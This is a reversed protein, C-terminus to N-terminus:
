NAKVLKGDIPAALKAAAAPDLKGTIRLVAGGSVYDYESGLGAAAKYATQIYKARAQAASADDFQEVTAGCAVGPAGDCTQGKVNLVTASSYGNPRGLEHNTDNAQTLETLSTVM